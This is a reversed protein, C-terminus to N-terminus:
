IWKPARDDFKDIFYQEFAPFFFTKVKKIEGSSPTILLEFKPNEKCEIDFYIKKNKSNNFITVTDIQHKKEEFDVVPFLNGEMNFDLMNKALSCETTRLALANQDRIFVGIFSRFDAGNISGELARKFITLLSKFAFFFFYKTQKM